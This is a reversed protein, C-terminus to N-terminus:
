PQRRPERDWATLGAPPAFWLRALWARLMAVPDRPPTGRPQDPYRSQLLPRVAFLDCLGLKELLPVYPQFTALEEPRPYRRVLQRHVQKLYRKHEASLPLGQKKCFRITHKHIDAI